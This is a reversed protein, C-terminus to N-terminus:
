LLRKKGKPAGSISHNRDDAFFPKVQKSVIRELSKWYFKSMVEEVQEMVEDFDMGTILTQDKAFLRFILRQKRENLRRVEVDPISGNHTAYNEALNVSILGTLPHKYLLIERSDILAAYCFRSHLYPHLRSEFQQLFDTLDIEVEFNGSPFHQVHCEKFCEYLNEAVREEKFIAICIALAATYAHLGGTAGWDFDCEYFPRLAYSEEPLVEIGDVWLRGSYKHILNRDTVPIVVGKIHYTKKTLNFYDAQAAQILHKNM